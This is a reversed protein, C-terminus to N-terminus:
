QRADRHHARVAHHLLRARRVLHAVVGRAVRDQAELPHARDHHTIFFMQNQHISPQFEMLDHFSRAWVQRYPPKVYRADSAPMYHTRQMDYGYLPWNLTPPAKPKKKVPATTTPAPATFPVNTNLVDGPRQGVTLYIAVAGGVLLAGGGALYRWRRRMWRLM